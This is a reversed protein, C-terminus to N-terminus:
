AQQVYLYFILAKKACRAGRKPMAATARKQHVMAGDLPDFLISYGHLSRM